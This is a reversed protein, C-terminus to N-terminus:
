SSSDFPTPHLGRSQLEEAKTKVAALLRHFNPCDHCKSQNGAKPCDCVFHTPQDFCYKCIPCWRPNKGRQRPRTGVKTSGCAPCKFEVPERQWEQLASQM